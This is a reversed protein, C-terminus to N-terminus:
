HASHLLRQLALARAAFEQVLLAHDEAGSVSRHGHHGVARRAGVDGVWYGVVRRRGPRARPRWMGPYLLSARADRGYVQYAVLEYQQGAGIATGPSIGSPGQLDLRDREPVLFGPTFEVADVFGAGHKYPGIAMNRPAARARRFIRSM